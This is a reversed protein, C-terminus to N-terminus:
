KDQPLNENVGFVDYARLPSIAPSGDNISGLNSNRFDDEELAAWLYEKNGIKSTFSITPRSDTYLDLYKLLIPRLKFYIEDIVSADKVLIWVPAERWRNHLQGVLKLWLGSNQAEMEEHFKLMEEYPMFM